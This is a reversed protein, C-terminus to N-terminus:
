CLVNQKLHLIIKEQIKIHVSPIQPHLLLVYYMIIIKLIFTFDIM